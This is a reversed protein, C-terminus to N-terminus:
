FVIYYFLNESEIGFYILIGV